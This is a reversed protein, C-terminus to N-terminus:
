ECSSSSSHDETWLSRFDELTAPAHGAYHNNFFGFVDGGANRFSKMVEVWPQLRDRPDLVQQEWTNTLAETEKRDGLFRFYGRQGQPMGLREIWDGAKPMWGQDIWALTAGGGEVVEVLDKQVWTPNRVEVVISVESTFRPLFEELRKLFPAPSSFAKKNFYPFQLLLPGLKEGLWQMNEVFIEMTEETDLLVKQHTVEGPVKATFIFGEPTRSCWNRVTSERPISYYTADIEM